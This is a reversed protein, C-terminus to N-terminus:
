TNLVNNDQERNCEAFGLGLQYVSIAQDAPCLSPLPSLAHRSPPSLSSVPSSHNSGCKLNPFIMEYRQSLECNQRLHVRSCHNEFKLRGQLAQWFVSQQARSRSNRILLLIQKELLNEPAASAAPVCMKFIVTRSYTRDFCGLLLSHSNQPFEGM